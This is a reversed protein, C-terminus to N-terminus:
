KSHIALHPAVVTAGGAGSCCGAYKVVAVYKGGRLRKSFNHSLQTYTKEGTSFITVQDFLCPGFICAAQVDWYGVFAGADTYIEFVFVPFDDSTPDILVSFDAGNCASDHGGVTFPLELLTDLDGQDYQALTAHFDGDGGATSRSIGTSTCGVVVHNPDPAVGTVPSRQAQAEGTVGLFFVSLAILGSWLSRKM